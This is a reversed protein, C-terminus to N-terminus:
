VLGENYAKVLADVITPDFQTGSSRKVETLAEEKSQSQKYPRRHTIVDYSDAVSIIRAILPIEDRELGEPYGKGDYREHHYKIGPLIDEFFRIHKLIDYGINSHSKIIEYEESTLKGPKMLIRDPIGIKGLDHLIAAYKLNDKFDDNLGLKDAIAMACSSVRHIHEATIHDRGEVAESLAISLNVMTNKMEEL